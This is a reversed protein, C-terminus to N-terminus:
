SRLIHMPEARSARRAPPWSAAVGVACLLLVVGVFSLPDSPSIEYLLGTLVRSVALAAVAGVATGVLALTAGQRLVLRAIDAARAGLAVRIGLERERQAVLYSIVGYVGVTALVLAVVAFVGVLLLMFRREAMSRSVLTEISTFRPPVDARLDALTRRAGGRGADHANAVRGM